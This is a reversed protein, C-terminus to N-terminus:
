ARAGHAHEVGELVDAVGDRGLGVGAPDALGAGTRGVEVLAGAPGSFSKVRRLVVKM